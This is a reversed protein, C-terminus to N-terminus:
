VTSCGRQYYSYSFRFCVFGVEHSATVLTHLAVGVPMACVACISCVCGCVALRFRRLHPKLTGMCICFIIEILRYAM